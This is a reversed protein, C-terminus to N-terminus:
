LFRRFVSFNIYGPHVSVDSTALALEKASFFTEHLSLYACGAQLKLEGGDEGAVKPELSAVAHDIRQTFCRESLLLISGTGFYDDTPPSALVDAPFRELMRIAPNGDALLLVNLEYAVGGVERGLRLPLEPPIADSERWTVESSVKHGLERLLKPFPVLGHLALLNPQAHNRLKTGRGPRREILGIQEMSQLARRVTTRSVGLQLALEDEPPLRGDKFAGRSVAGIMTDLVQQALSSGNGIRPLTTRDASAAEAPTQQVMDKM